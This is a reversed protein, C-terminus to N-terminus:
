YLFPILRKTRNMYAIFEEGFEATLLREEEEIRGRFLWFYYIGIIITMTISRFVLETAIADILGGTYLPHRIHKYLGSTLLKHDDEIVLAGSGFRGLQLRSSITILSAIIYIFLALYAVILRDWAVFYKSIVFMNEYFAIILFFPNLFFAVGLMKEYKTISERQESVPRIITDIFTWLYYLILLIQYVFIYYIEPVFILYLLNYYFVQVFIFFAM